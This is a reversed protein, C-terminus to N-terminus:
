LCLSKVTLFMKSVVLLNKMLLFLTKKIYDDVIYDDIYKLYNARFTQEKVGFTEYYLQVFEDVHLPAYEYMFDKVQQERDVNGIAINPMRTLEINLDRRKESTRRIINHLENEHKNYKEM